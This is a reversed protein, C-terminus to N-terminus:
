ENEDESSMEKELESDGICLDEDDSDGFKDLYDYLQGEVYRDYDSNGFCGAM